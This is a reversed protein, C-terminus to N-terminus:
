SVVITIPSTTPPLTGTGTAGPWRGKLTGSTASISWGDDPPLQLTANGTSNTTAATVGCGPDPNDSVQVSAGSVAVGTSKQVHVSVNQPVLTNLTLAVTSTLVNHAYDAPITVPPAMADSQVCPNTTSVATVTYSNPVLPEGGLTTVAPDGNKFAFTATKRASSMTVNATGAYAAGTTADNLQVNLTAPKYIHIATDYTQSPTLTVHSPTKPSADDALTQYGPVTVKLDYPPSTSSGDLASFSTSGSADTVGEAEPVIASVHYLDVVANPMVTNLAYDYVKVNIVAQFIGGMPARNPPAVFTIESALQKGDSARSVTVTVKKYFAGTAYSTPTGDHNVYRIDTVVNAKLGVPSITKTAPVVGTPNGVPTIGVKDYTLSRIWEVQAQAAEEAITKQRALRDAATASTLVGMLAASVVAFLVTAFLAEILSFGSEDRSLRQIRRFFPDALPM